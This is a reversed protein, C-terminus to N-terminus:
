FTVTEMQDILFCYFPLLSVPYFPIEGSLDEVAERYDPVALNIGNSLV